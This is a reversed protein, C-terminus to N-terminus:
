GALETGVAATLREAREALGDVSNAVVCLEARAATGSIAGLNIEINVRSTTAAARAAEPPRPGTM